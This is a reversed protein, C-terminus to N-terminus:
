NSYPILCVKKNKTSVDYFYEDNFYYYETKGNIKIVELLPGSGFDCSDTIKGYLKDDVFVDFGILDDLLIADDDIACSYYLIEGSKQKATDIDCIGDIFCLYEKGNFSKISIICREENSYFIKYKSLISEFDNELPAVKVCGDLGHPKLIKCFPILFERTM